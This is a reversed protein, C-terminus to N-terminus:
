MLYALRVFCKIGKTIQLVKGAPASFAGGQLRPHIQVIFFYVFKILVM